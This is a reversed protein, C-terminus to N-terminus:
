PTELATVRLELDDIVAQQAINITNASNLAVVLANLIVDLSTNADLGLLTFADTSYVCRTDYRKGQCFDETQVPVIYNPCEM